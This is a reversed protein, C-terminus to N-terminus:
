VGPDRGHDARAALDSTSAPSRSRRRARGGADHLDPDLDGDRHGRARRPVRRRHVARGRGVVRAADDHQPRAQRRDHLDLTYDSGDTIPTGISIALHSATDTSVGIQTDFEDVSALVSTTASGSCAAANLTDLDNCGLAVVTVADGPHYYAHGGIPPASVESQPLGTVLAFSLDEIWADCDPLGDSGLTLPLVVIQVDLTREPLSKPIRDAPIESSVISCLDHDHDLVVPQCSSIFPSDPDDPDLVRVLLMSPCSLPVDACTPDAITKATCTDHPGSEIEIEITLPPATCAALAVLGALRAARAIM